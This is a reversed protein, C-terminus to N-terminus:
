RAQEQLKEVKRERMYTYINRERQQYCSESVESISLSKNLTEQPNVRYGGSHLGYKTDRLTKFVIM